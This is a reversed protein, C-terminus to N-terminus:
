TGFVMTIVLVTFTKERSLYGRQPPCRENGTPQAKQSSGAGCGVPQQTGGRGWWHFILLVKWRETQKGRRLSRNEWRWLPCGRRVYTPFQQEVECLVCVRSKRRERHWLLRKLPINWELASGTHWFLPKAFSIWSPKEKKKKKVKHYRPNRYLM